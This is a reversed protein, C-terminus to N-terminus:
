FTTTFIHISFEFTSFKTPLCLLIETEKLMKLLRLKIVSYNSLIVRFAERGRSNINYIVLVQVWELTGKFQRPLKSSCHHFQSGTGLSWRFKEVPSGSADEPIKSSSPILPLSPSIQLNYSNATHLSLSACSSDAATAPPQTRGTGQMEFITVEGLSATEARHSPFGLGLCYLNRSNPNHLSSM